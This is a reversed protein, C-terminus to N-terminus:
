VTQGAGGRTTGELSQTAWGASHCSSGTHSDQTELRTWPLATTMTIVIVASPHPPPHCPFLRGARLAPPVAGCQVVYQAAAHKWWMKGLGIAHSLQTRNM